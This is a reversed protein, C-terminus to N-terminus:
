SVPSIYVSVPKNVTIGLRARLVVYDHREGVAAATSCTAPAVACRRSRVRAVTHPGGEQVEVEDEVWYRECTCPMAGIGLADFAGTVGSAVNHVPAGLAAQVQTPEGDGFGTFLWTRGAASAEFLPPSETVAAISARLVRHLEGPERAEVHIAESRELPQQVNQQNKPTGM